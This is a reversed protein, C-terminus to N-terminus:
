ERKVEENTTQELRILLEVYDKCKSLDEIPNGKYQYRCLYKLASGLLFGRYEEESFLGKQMADLPSFGNVRYYKKEIM